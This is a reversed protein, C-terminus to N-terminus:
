DELGKDSDNVELGEDGRSARTKLEEGRPGRRWQQEELVEGGDEGM